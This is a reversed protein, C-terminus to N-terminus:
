RHKFIPKRKEVFAEMGEDKDELAFTSYFLRREFLLGESLGSEFSRNVAEKAMAVAPQSFNAIEKGINLTEELMDSLPYVRSVLGVREAEEAEMTRGTLIMDMARSKGIIRSLRQTAGSGPFTGLKIEPQGFQANDAAVIFDCMMALECGGGFAYGAVAAIVPKRCRTIRDWKAIFDTSFADAYDKEIMEKIDAGAAFVRDSGTLVMAGVEKETEFINLAGNLETMLADNLANLADPRNLKILGVGEHTEVLINEYSM